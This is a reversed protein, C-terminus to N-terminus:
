YQIITELIEAESLQNDKNSTVEIITKNEKSYSEVIQYPDMDEFPYETIEGTIYDRQYAIGTMNIIYLKDSNIMNELKSSIESNDLSENKQLYGNDSISFNNINNNQLLQLFKNRSQESIWIGNNSPEKATLEELESEEPKANKIVGALDVEYQIEPKIQLIKRGDYEREVRYISSDATADIENKITEIENQDESYWIENSVNEINTINENQTNNINENKSGNNSLVMLVIIIILIIVIMIYYRKKM